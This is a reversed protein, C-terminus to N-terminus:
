DVFSDFQHSLPFHVLLVNLYLTSFLAKEEVNDLDMHEQDWGRLTGTGSVQRWYQSFWPNRTNKEPTLLRYHAIFDRVDRQGDRLVLLGGLDGEFERLQLHFLPDLPNRKERQRERIYM